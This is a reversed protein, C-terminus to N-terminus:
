KRTATTVPPIDVEEFSQPVARMIAAKVLDIHEQIAPWYNTKLVVLSIQRAHNDQQYYINQDATVLVQFGNREAAEILYGNEFDGWAVTGAWVVLHGTLLARM